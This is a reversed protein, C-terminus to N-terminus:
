SRNRTWKHETPALSLTRFAVFRTDDGHGDFMITSPSSGDAVADLATQHAWQLSEASVQYARSRPDLTLPSIHEIGAAEKTSSEDQAISLADMLNYNGFRPTENM